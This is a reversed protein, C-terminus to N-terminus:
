LSAEHALIDLICRPPENAWTQNDRTKALIALKDAVLNCCRPVFYAKFYNFKAVLGYAESLIIGNHSQFTTSQEFSELVIRADGELILARIGLNQALLLGERIALVEARLAEAEGMIKKVFAAIFRGKWDEIVAGIGVANEDAFTAGDVNLKLLGQPPATGKEPLHDEELSRPDRISAWRYCSLRTSSQLFIQVQSESPKGKWVQNRQNWIEEWITTMMERERISLKTFNTQLYELWSKTDQVASRVQVQINSFGIVTQFFPGFNIM